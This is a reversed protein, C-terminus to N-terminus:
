GSVEIRAVIAQVPTGGVDITDEDPNIEYSDMGLSEANSELVDGIADILAVAEADNTAPTDLNLMATVFVWEFVGYKLDQGYGLTSLERRRTPLRGFSLPLDGADISEPRYQSKRIVGTVTLAYVKSSLDALTTFPM